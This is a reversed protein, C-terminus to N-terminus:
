GCSDTISNRDTTVVLHRQNLQSFSDNLFQYDNNYYKRFHTAVRPGVAGGAVSPPPSSFKPCQDWVCDYTSGAKALLNDVLAEYPRVLDVAHDGVTHLVQEQSFGSAPLQYFFRAYVESHFAPNQTGERACFDRERQARIISFQSIDDEMLLELKIIQFYYSQATAHRAESTYKLFPMHSVRPPRLLCVAM